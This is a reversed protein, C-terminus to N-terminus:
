GESGTTVQCRSYLFGQTGVAHSASLRGAAAYVTSFVMM